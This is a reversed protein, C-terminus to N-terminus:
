SYTNKRRNLYDFVLISVVGLLMSSLTSVLIILWRIPYSKQEAKFASNVVFKGPLEQEADVKAEEYKTKLVSLQKKDFELADRISVYSSGYESLIKLKEEIAKAGSANNHSLAIAHQTNYAEAQTEYDNIGLKRLEKLSDEMKLIENKLKLYEAEVIKLGQIARERQMTNKTSDLLAAIDNAIDAAMQPDKDLVEIEVAMFETRRFRINNEYKKFLKTNKFKSKSSINYHELLNYKEIIRARIKNSNLIQLLQESQEEAGFQLIDQTAGYNDAMLAKSVSNTSTPFMIVTSKYKPTIFFSSSFVISAIMAIVGILILLKKWRYIFLFLGASNFNYSQNNTM